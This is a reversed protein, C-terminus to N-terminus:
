PAFISLSTHTLLQDKGSFFCGRGQSGHRDEVAGQQLETILNDKVSLREHLAKENERFAELQATQERTTHRLSEVEAMFSSLRDQLQMADDRLRTREAGSGVFDIDRERLIRRAADV